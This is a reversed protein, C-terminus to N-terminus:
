KLPPALTILMVRIRRGNWARTTSPGIKNSFYYIQSCAACFLHSGGTEFVQGNKRIALIEGINLSGLTSGQLSWFKPLAFLKTKQVM